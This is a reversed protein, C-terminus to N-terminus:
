HASAWETWRPETAPPPPDVTMVVITRESAARHVTCANAQALLTSLRESLKAVPSDAAGSQATRVLSDLQTLQADLCSALPTNGAARADALAALVKTSAASARLSLAAAATKARAGGDSGLEQACVWGPCLLLGLCAARLHGYVRPM